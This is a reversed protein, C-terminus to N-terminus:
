VEVGAKIALGPLRVNGAAVTKVHVLADRKLRLVEGIGSGDSFTGAVLEFEADCVAGGLHAAMHHDVTGDAEPVELRDKRHPLAVPVQDVELQDRERLIANEGAGTGRLQHVPGNGHAAIQNAADVRGGIVAIDLPMELDNEANGLLM